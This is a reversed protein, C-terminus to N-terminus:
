IYFTSETLSSDIRGTTETASRHGLLCAVSQLALPGPNSGRTLCPNEHKNTQKTTTANKVKQLAFVM